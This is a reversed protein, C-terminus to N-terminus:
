VTTFRHWFWALQPCFDILRVYVVILDESIAASNEQDISQSWLIANYAHIVCATPMDNLNEAEDCWRKLVNAVTTEM